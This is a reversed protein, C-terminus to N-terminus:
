MMMIRSDFLSWREANADSLLPENCLGLSRCCIFAYSTPQSMQNGWKGEEEGGEGAGAHNVMVDSDPASESALCGRSFLSVSFSFPFALAAAAAAAASGAEGWFWGSCNGAAAPCLVGALFSCTLRRMVVAYSCSGKLICEKLIGRISTRISKYRHSCCHLCHWNGKKSEGSNSFVDIGNLGSHITDKHSIYIFLIFVSAMVETNLAAICRIRRDLHAQTETVARLNQNQFIPALM